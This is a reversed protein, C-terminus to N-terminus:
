VKFSTSTTTSAQPPQTGDPHKPPQTPQASKRPTKGVIKTKYRFSKGDLSNDNVDDTEDTHYNYLSGSTMSYNQSYELLNYMPM